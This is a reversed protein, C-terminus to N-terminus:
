KDSEYIKAIVALVSILLIWFGVAGVGILCKVVGPLQDISM